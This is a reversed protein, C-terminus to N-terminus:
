SAAALLELAGERALLDASSGAPLGLEQRLQRAEARHRRLDLLIREVIVLSPAYIDADV